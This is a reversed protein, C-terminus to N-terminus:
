GRCGPARRPVGLTATHHRTHPQPPDRSRDPPPSRVRGRAPLPRNPAAAAALPLKPMQPGTSTTSDSGLALDQKQSSGRGRGASAPPAAADGDRTDRPRTGALPFVRPCAPSAKPVGQSNDHTHLSASAASPKPTRLGAEEQQPRPSQPSRLLRSPSVNSVLKRQIKKNKITYTTQSTWLKHSKLLTSYRHWATVPTVGTVAHHQQHLLQSRAWPEDRM